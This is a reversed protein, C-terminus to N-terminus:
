GGYAAELLLVAWEEVEGRAPLEYAFELSRPVVGKGSKAAYTVTIADAGVDAALVDYLPM